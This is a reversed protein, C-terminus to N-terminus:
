LPPRRSNAAGHAWMAVSRRSEAHRPTAPYCQGRSNRHRAEGAGSRRLGCWGSRGVYPAYSSPSGSTLLRVYWGFLRRRAFVWPKRSRMRV